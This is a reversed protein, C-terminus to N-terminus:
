DRSIDIAEYFEDMLTEDQHKPTEGMSIPSPLMSIIYAVSWIRSRADKPINGWPLYMSRLLDRIVIRRGYDNVLQVDVQFTDKKYRYVGKVDTDKYETNVSYLKEFGQSTLFNITEERYPTFFDFDVSTGTKNEFFRSGTLAFTMGKHCLERNDNLSKYGNNVKQVAQLFDPIREKDKQSLLTKVANILRMSYSMDTM